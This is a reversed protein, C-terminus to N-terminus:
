PADLQYIADSAAKMMEPTGKTGGSQIFRQLWEKANKKDGLAKYAMGVNYVAMFLDGNRELGKKYEKIAEDYQTQKQLALGLGYHLDGDSDNALAGAQFVQQAEKDYDNDLYLNGLRVFASSFRPNVAIAKRYEADADRPKEQAEYVTGLRFHVKFLKDNTKLAAEFESKAQDLKKAEQLATGLEYHYNPDDEIKVAESFASAAEDWKKQDKYVIGLNFWAVHNHPDTEVAQKLNKVASDYLKNKANEVGTNMYEISKNRNEYCGALSVSLPAVLFATLLLSRM